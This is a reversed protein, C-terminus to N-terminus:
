FLKDSVPSHKRECAFLASLQSWDISSIKIEPCIEILIIIQKKNSIIINNDSDDRHCGSM